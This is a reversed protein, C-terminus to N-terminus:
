DAKTATNGDVSAWMLTTLDAATFGDPIPDALDWGQPIGAPLVVKRVSQAGALMCHAATAKAYKAGAEDNDRWIIVDRGHVLGWDALGANGSGCPSTVVVFQPFSLQAAEATKEGEVVLIPEEPAEALRAWNWIPLQGKPFGIVLQIRDSADVYCHVPLFRKRGGELDQRFILLVTRGDAGTYDAVSVCGGKNRM